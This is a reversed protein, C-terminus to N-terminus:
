HFYNNEMFEKITKFNFILNEFNILFFLVTTIHKQYFTLFSYFISTILQSNLYIISFIFVIFLQIFRLIFSRFIFLIMSFM